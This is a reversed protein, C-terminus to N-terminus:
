EKKTKIETQNFLGQVGTVQQVKQVIVQQDRVTTVTVKLSVEGKQTIIQINKAAVSLSDNEMLARRIQRTIEVDSTAASQQQATPGTSQNPYYNKSAAFSSISYILSFGILFYAMTKM